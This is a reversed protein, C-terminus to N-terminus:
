RWLRAAIGRPASAVARGRVADLVSHALLACSSDASAETSSRPSSRVSLACAAPVDTGLAHARVHLRRRAVQHLRQRLAPLPATQSRRPAAPPRAARLHQLLPVRRALTDPVRAQMWSNNSACTARVGSRLPPRGRRRLRQAVGLQVRPGVPQRMMQPAPRPGSSAHRDAQLAADLHHHRQQRDSFAPPAYTGSSGASDASRSANMSRVARGTTSSAVPAAHAASASAPGDHRDDVDLNVRARRACSGAPAVQVPAPRGSAPSM